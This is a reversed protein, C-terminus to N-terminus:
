KTKLKFVVGDHKEPGGRSTTGFIAHHADLLLGGIPNTGQFRSFSYLVTEVGKRNLEFM